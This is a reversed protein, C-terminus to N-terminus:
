RKNIHHPGNYYEIRLQQLNIKLPKLLLILNTILNRLELSGQISGGEGRGKFLVRGDCDYWIRIIM